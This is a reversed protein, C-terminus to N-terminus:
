GDGFIILEFLTLTDRKHKRAALTLTEDKASVQKMCGIQFITSMLYNPYADKRPSAILFIFINLWRMTRSVSM